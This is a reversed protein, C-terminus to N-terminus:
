TAAAEVARRRAFRPKLAGAIGVMVQHNLPFELMVHLLSLVYFVAFGASYSYAYVSIGGLWLGLIAFVRARSVEHWKIVSTKSFWNLYHYLYAFAILRMVGVESGGFLMRLIANLQGFGGDGYLAQVRASPAVSPAWLTVTAVACGVFVALSVYGSRSSSKLAGFLVFCATFLLVHVITVLLYAAIAFTPHSSVIALVVACVGLLAAMSVGHRVFLVMAGVFFALYVLSIELTPAVPEHLLDSSVYGYAVAITALIVVALWVRRMPQKQTFYQRDHLWSIETLYHLPGLIAYALLFVHFPAAMAAGCAAIMLIVNLWNVQDPTLKNVGGLIPGQRRM